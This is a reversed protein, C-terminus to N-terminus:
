SPTWSVPLLESQMIQTVSPARPNHALSPRERARLLSELMLADRGCKAVRMNEVIIGPACEIVAIGSITGFRAPDDFHFARLRSGGLGKQMVTYVLHEVLQALRGCAGQPTAARLHAPDRRADIAPHFM